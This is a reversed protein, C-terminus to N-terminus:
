ADLTFEKVITIEDWGEDYSPEEFNKPIVTTAKPNRFPSTRRAIIELPTDIYIVRRYHGRYSSLLAARLSRSEYVGEVVVDGELQSVISNVASYREKAVTSATDLHIVNEFRKSYTTKGARCRGCILTLM